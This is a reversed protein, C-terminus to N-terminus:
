FCVIGVRKITESKYFTKQYYMLPDTLEYGLLDEAVMVSAKLKKIQLELKNIQSKNSNIKKIRSITGNDKIRVADLRGLEPPIRNDVHWKFKLHDPVLVGHIYNLDMPVYVEKTKLQKLKGVHCCLVINIKGINTTMYQHQIQAYYRAPCIGEDFEKKSVLKFELILDEALNVGDLSSRLWPYDAMQVLMPPFEIGGYQIEIMARAQKEVKHGKEFIYRKSEIEKETLKLQGTKELYLKYISKYPSDGVIVPADSSGQGLNRWLEWESSNQDM